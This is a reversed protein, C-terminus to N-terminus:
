KSVILSGLIFFFLATLTSFGGERGPVGGGLVGLFPDSPLRDETKQLLDSLTRKLSRVCSGILTYMAAVNSM